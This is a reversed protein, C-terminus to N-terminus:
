LRRAALRRRHAKLLDSRTVFGIVREPDRRSVVPLRGVDQDLMRDAASRLSEDDFAVVAPRRVLTALSAAEDRAEEIERATVVGILVGRADLLPFGQHRAGPDPSTLWARAGRVSQDARLVVVSQSAGDRVLVYKQM